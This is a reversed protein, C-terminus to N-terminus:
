RRRIILGVLVGVGFALAGTALVTEVPRREIQRTALKLAGDAADRGQRAVSRAIEVGDEVAGVAASGARAAKGASEAIYDGTKELINHPM